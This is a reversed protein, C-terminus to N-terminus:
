FWPHIHQNSSKNLALTAVTIMCAKQCPSHAQM